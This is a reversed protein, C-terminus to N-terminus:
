QNYAETMSQALQQNEFEQNSIYAYGAIAAMVLLVKIIRIM